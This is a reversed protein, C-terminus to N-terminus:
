GSAYVTRTAILFLIRHVADILIEDERQQLVDNDVSHSAHALAVISRGLIEVLGFDLLFKMIGSSKTVLTRILTALQHFLAPDLASNPLLGLILIMSQLQLTTPNEPWISFPDLLIQELIVDVGVCFILCSEAVAPTSRYPQLQIM